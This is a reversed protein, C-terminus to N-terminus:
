SELQLLGDCANTREKLYDIACQLRNIDDKMHGIAVNCCHCIIGRVKGTAHCHDVVAQNPPRSDNRKIPEVHLEVSCVACKGDQTAVMAEWQQRTLGYRHKMQKWRQISPDARQREILAKNHCSKCTFRHGTPTKYFETLQKEVSCTKCKFM